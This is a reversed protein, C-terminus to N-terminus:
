PKHKEVLFKELDRSTHDFEGKSIGQGFMSLMGVIEAPLGLSKLTSEFTSIDPSTYKVEVGATKGILKSVTKFDVTESGNFEYIENKHIEPKALMNAAAEALDKRPVFNVKGEGTPLYISRTEMLKNKDGVFLPIVEAYLNHRLITYDLGSQLLAEETLKHSNVVPFLPSDAAEDKRVASTYLIHKVGKKLSAQIINNHQELRSGLDNGSVLYLVEIGALAKELSDVDNYDGTRIDIGQLTFKQAIEHETNRVLVAIDKPAVKEALYNVVLSGLSGTAGTILTKKMTLKM